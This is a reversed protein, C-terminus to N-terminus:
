YLSLSEEVIRENGGSNKYSSKIYLNKNAPDFSSAIIHFSSDMVSSLIVANPEVLLGGGDPAFSLEYKWGNPGLDAYDLESVGGTTPILSKIITSTDISNLTGTASDGVYIYKSLASTYVGALDDDKTNLYLISAATDIKYKSVSKISIPLMYNNSLLYQKYIKIPITDYVSSVSATISTQLSYAESPMASFNTGNAANYNTRYSDAIELSISTAEPLLYTSSIVLNYTMTDASSFLILVKSASSAGGNIFYFNPTTDFTDTNKKCSSFLCLLLYFVGLTRFFRM